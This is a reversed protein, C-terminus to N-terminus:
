TTLMPQTCDFYKIGNHSGDHKGRTPDDWEVGIWQGKTGHVEGIYRVTCLAGSYSLRQGPYFENAMAVNYILLPVHILNHSGLYSFIVALARSRTSTVLLPILM